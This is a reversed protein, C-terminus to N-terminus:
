YRGSLRAVAAEYRPRLRLLDPRMHELNEALDALKVERAIDAFPEECLAIAEIYPEYEYPATRTLLEVAGRENNDLWDPLTDCDELCDHLVAVVKADDSVRRAVRLPHLVYPLGNYLQEDHAETAFIIADLLRNLKGGTTGIGNTTTRM